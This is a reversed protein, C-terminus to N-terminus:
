VGTRPDIMESFLGLHNANIGLEAFMAQAEEVNGVQALVRVLWFSCLM